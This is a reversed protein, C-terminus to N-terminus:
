PCNVRIFEKCYEKIMDRTEFFSRMIEEETGTVRAPDPFDRHHRVAPGPFYPCRERAHDCVTIIHDFRLAEYDSALNSFQHSIDIGDAKMAAMARPNVGHAEIGASFVEARNGAFHMLYGHAMQSRCSNGTCLVLIRKKM